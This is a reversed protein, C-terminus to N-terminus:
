KRATRWFFAVALLPLGLSSGLVGGVLASLNDYQGREIPFLLNLYKTLLQSAVIALSMLSATLAFWTARAAAPAHVAILTLLPVQA